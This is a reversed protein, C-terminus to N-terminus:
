LSADQDISRDLLLGFSQLVTNPLGLLMSFCKMSVSYSCM